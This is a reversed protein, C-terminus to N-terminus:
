NCEGFSDFSCVNWTVLGYNVGGFGSSSGSATGREFRITISRQAEGGSFRVAQVFAQAFGVIKYQASNGGGRPESFLPLLISQGVMANPNVSTSPAGPSGSIVDGVEIYGDYGSEVWERIEGTTNSGGNFDLVGWNGSVDGGCKQNPAQFRITESVGATMGGAIWRAISPHDVCLGFPRLGSVSQAAGIRVATAADVEASDRGLLRAFLLSVRETAQMTVVGSTSTGSTSCAINHPSAGDASVYATATASCKAGGAAWEAGSAVAAAEVGTQLRQRSVWVRGSDVVVALMLSLPVFVLAAIIAISGRDDHHGM